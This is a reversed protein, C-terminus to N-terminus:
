FLFGSCNVTMGLTVSSALDQVLVHAPFVMNLTLELLCEKIFLVDNM